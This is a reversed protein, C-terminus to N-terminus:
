KFSAALEPLFTKNEEYSKMLQDYLDKGPQYSELLSFNKIVDKFGPNDMAKRVSQELKGRINEPLGPPAVLAGPSEAYIGYGLDLWTPVNPFDKFRERQPAALLRLQRSDVFPRWEQSQFCIDVHGGLVATVAEMGGKFPVVRLKFDPIKRELKVYAVHMTSGIGAVSVSLKEPTKKAAEVFEPFTKWPADSKVVVGYGYDFVRCIYSFGHVPDFPAKSILSKETIASCSMFGLTYGDPKAKTLSGLALLGAAGAKNEVVVPVKLMKTLTDALSRSILDTNGGAPFGVIIVIPNSPWEQANPLQPGMFLTLFTAVMIAIKYLSKSKM